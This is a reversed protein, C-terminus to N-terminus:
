GFSRVPRGDIAVMAPTRDPIGGLAEECVHSLYLGSEWGFPVSRSVEGIMLLELRSEIASGM